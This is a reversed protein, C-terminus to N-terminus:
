LTESPNFSEEVTPLQDQPVCIRIKEDLRQEGEWIADKILQKLAYEQKESLGIAEIMQLVRGVTWAANGQIAEYFYGFDEWSIVPGHKVLVEPTKSM